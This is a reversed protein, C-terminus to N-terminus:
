ATARVGDRMAAMEDLIVLRSKTAWAIVGVRRALKRLEMSDLATLDSPITPVVAEVPAAFTEPATPAPAPEPAATPAEVVVSPADVVPAAASAFAAPELADAIAANVEAAADSVAKEIETTSFRLSSCLGAANDRIGQLEGMCM